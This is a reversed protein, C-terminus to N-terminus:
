SAPTDSLEQKESFSRFVNGVRGVVSVIGQLSGRVPHPRVMSSHPPAGTESDQDYILPAASLEMTAPGELALQGPASTSSEIEFGTHDPSPLDGPYEDTPMLADRYEQLGPQPESMDQFILDVKGAM